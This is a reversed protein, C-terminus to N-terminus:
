SVSGIHVSGLTFSFAVVVLNYHDDNYIYTITIEEDEVNNGLNVCSTIHQHKVELEM